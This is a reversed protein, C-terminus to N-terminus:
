STASASAGGTYSTETFQLSADDITGEVTNTQVQAVPLGPEYVATTNSLYGRMAQGGGPMDAGERVVQLFLLEGYGGMDREPLLVYGTPEEVGGVPQQGAEEIGEQGVGGQAGAFLSGVGGSAALGVGLLALVLLAALGGVLLLRSAGSSPARGSGPSAGGPSALNGPPPPVPVDAEPTPVRATAHAARGCGPCFRDREGLEHGCNRCYKDPRNQDVKM